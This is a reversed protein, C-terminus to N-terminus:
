PQRPLNVALWEELRAEDLAGTVVQVQHGADFLYARPLEGRWKRDVAFRVGEPMDDAFIWHRDPRLGLQELRAAVAPALDPADTAVLALPLDPRAKMHRALIELEVMCYGCGLSWFALIYPRGQHHRALAAPTGTDFAQPLGGAGATFTLCVALILSLRGAARSM